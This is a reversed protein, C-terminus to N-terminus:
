LMMRRRFETALVLLVVPIILIPIMDLKVGLFAESRILQPLLFIVISLTGILIKSPYFYWILCMLFIGGYCIVDLLLADEKSVYWGFKIKFLFSHILIGIAAFILFLYLYGKSHM